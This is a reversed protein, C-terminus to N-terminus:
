PASAGYAQLYADAVFGALTVAAGVALRAHSSSARKPKGDRGRDSAYVSRLAALSAVVTGLQELCRRVAATERRADGTSAAVVQLASAVVAAFDDTKRSDPKGSLQLVTQCVSEVLEKAGAVADAPSENALLYLRRGRDDVLALDEARTVAFARPATNAPRFVGGTFSFGDREAAQVLFDVKSAAVEEILAGLAHGLRDVQQPDHQDVGAIYRRFQTRRGGAPGGPDTGPRIDVAAFARDLPRLPISASAAEFKELTEPSFVKAVHASKRPTGDSV